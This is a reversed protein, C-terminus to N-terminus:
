NHPKTLMWYEDLVALSSLGAPRFVIIPAKESTTPDTVLEFFSM